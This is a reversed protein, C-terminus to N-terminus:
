RAARQRRLLRRLCLRPAAIVVPTSAAPGTNGTPDTATTSLTHPGDSLPTSPTCTWSGAANATATCLVPGGPGDRVTMYRLTCWGQHVVHGKCSVRKEYLKANTSDLLRAYAYTVHGAHNAYNFQFAYVQGGTLGTVTQEIKGNGPSGNLDVTKGYLLGPNFNDVPGSTITWGPLADSAINLHAPAAEFDGNIVYNLPQSSVRVNDIIVGHYTHVDTSLDQFRVTVIGSGPATFSGRFRKWGKHNPDGGTGTVTQDILPTAGDLVQAKAQEGAVANVSYDFEFIYTQGATLGSVNQAIVGPGPTGALDVENTSQDANFYGNWVDVKGSEVTWDPIVTQNLAQAGADFSGNLAYNTLRRAVRVDDIMVGHHTHPDVSLDQFRLTVSGSAPATFTQRFSQWGQSYPNGLATVTQDILPTSGDLVQAKAQENAFHNGTYSFEFFYSQGAALGTITQEIVGPGPTGALDVESSSGDPRFYGGWVDVMGSAVSWGPINTQNLGDPGMEFSGNVVANEEPHVTTQFQGNAQPAVDLIANANATEAQGWLPQLTKAVGALADSLWGSLGAQEAAERAMQPTPQFLGVTATGALAMVQTCIVIGTLLKHLKKSKDMNM